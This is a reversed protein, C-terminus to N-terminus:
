VCKKIQSKMEAYTLKGTTARVVKELDTPLNAAMLLIFAQVGDPFSMGPIETLICSNLIYSSHRMVIGVQM